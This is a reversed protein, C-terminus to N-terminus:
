GKAGRALWTELIPVEDALHEELGSVMAREVSGGVIPMRVKVDGESHRLTAAPDDPDAHFRYWGHCRLRDAYHDPELHFTVRHTARHHESVDVWTLKAPDIVATVAPSLNGTFRYRVRVRVTDGKVTRELLEPTGLNPLEALAAYLGPDRFADAVAALPAAFRQTLGFRM